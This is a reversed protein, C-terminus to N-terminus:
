SRENLFGPLAPQFLQDRVLGDEDFAYIFIETTAVDNRSAAILDRGAIELIVPVQANQRDTPFPAALAAVRIGDQPIDNM